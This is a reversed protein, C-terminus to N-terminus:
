GLLREIENQALIALTPKGDPTYNVNECAFLQNVLNEMEENGLVQGYPIAASRALSLALSHHIENSVSSTQEAATAVINQILVVANVGELSAPIANVAYSGQGLDALQFGIQEMEDMMKQLIMVDSPSLHIVDPFLMRQPTGNRERLQARYQEYLVRMHARHQDIIMLGSKVATMVYM